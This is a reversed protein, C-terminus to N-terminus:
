CKVDGEDRKKPRVQDPPPIAPYWQANRDSEDVFRIANDYYKGFAENRMALLTAVASRKQGERYRRPWDLSLGSYFTSAADSKLPAEWPRVRAPDLRLQQSAECFSKCLGVGIWDQNKELNHGEVLPLGLYVGTKLHMVAEGVAIAGRLPIKADLARCILQSCSDFFPNVTAPHATVWLLITDSFHCARIPARLLAPSFTSAGRPAWTMAWTGDRLPNVAEHILRSYLAYLELLGISRATDSFGLVDFIGVISFKATPKEPEEQDITPDAERAIVVTRNGRFEKPPEYDKPAGVFSGDPRMAGIAICYIEELDADGDVNQADRLLDFENGAPRSKALEACVRKDIILKTCFAADLDCGNWLERCKGVYEAITLDHLRHGGDKVLASVACRFEKEDSPLFLTTELDRRERCPRWLWMRSKASSLWTQTSRLSAAIWAQGTQM